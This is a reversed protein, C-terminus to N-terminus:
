NVSRLSIIDKLKFRGTATGILTGNLYIKEYLVPKWGTSRPTEFKYYGSTHLLESSNVYQLLVTATTPLNWMDLLTVNLVVSRGTLAIAPLQNAISQDPSYISPEPRISLSGNVTRVPVTSSQSHPTFAITILYFGNPELSGDYGSLYLLAGGQDNLNSSTTYSVNNSAKSGSSLTAALTVNFGDAQPVNLIISIAYISVNNQWSYYFVTTQGQAVRINIDGGGVIPVPSLLTPCKEMSDSPSEFNVFIHSSDTCNGFLSDLSTSSGNSHLILPTNITVNGSTLYFVPSDAQIVTNNLHVWSPQYRTSDLVITTNELTCSDLFVDGESLFIDVDFVSSSSSRFTTSYFAVSDPAYILIMPQDSQLGGGVNVFLSNVCIFKKYLNLVPKLRASTNSMIVSDSILFEGDDFGSHIYGTIYLFVSNRVLSLDSSLYLTTNGTFTTNTITISGIGIVELAGDNWSCGELSVKVLQGSSGLKNNNDFKCYKFEVEGLV